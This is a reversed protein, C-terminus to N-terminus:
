VQAQQEERRMHAIETVCRSFETGKQGKVHKKSMGKCAQGPPMHKHNRARARARVCRSFPTGKEGKVHKKSFGRCHVGHAEGQPNPNPNYNPPNYNPTYNPGDAAATPVIGVVLAAVGLAITLHLKM